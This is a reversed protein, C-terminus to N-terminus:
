ISFPATFFSLGLSFWRDGGGNRNGYSANLQVREPALWHRVGFQYFPKGRDQGYTEATLGVRQTLQLEAGLGWTMRDQRERGDRLWGLNTHVLLDDDRLSFSVPILAYWDRANAKPYRVMGAALGVGWGNPEMPKFLTKGQLALDSAHTHGAERTLAGGAALEVNGTFNCAPMAWMETSHRNKQVWSDFQCTKPDVLTADETVMPRGAQAACATLLAAGLIALRLPPYAAGHRGPQRFYQFRM